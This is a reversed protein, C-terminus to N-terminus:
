DSYIAYYLGSLYRTPSKFVVKGSTDAYASDRKLNQNGYVGVLKVLGESAGKLTIEIEADNTFPEFEKGKNKQGFSLVSVLLFVITLTQKTIYKMSNNTVYKKM